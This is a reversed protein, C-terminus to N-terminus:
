LAPRELIQELYDKPLRELDDPTDIDWLTNLKHYKWSLQTIKKETQTLVQNTSWKIDAFLQMDMKRAGILVYGGDDVPGLVVDTNNQLHKFADALYDKDMVPCDTGILVAYQHTNLADNLANGMREGLDQGTQTKLKINYHKKLYSFFDHHIDPACYLDVDALNAQSVLKVTRELLHQHLKSALQAGLKPMLRTKVQGAVPAKSFIILKANPFVPM